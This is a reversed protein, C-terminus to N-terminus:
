DVDEGTSLEIVDAPQSEDLKRLWHVGFGNAAFDLPYLLVVAVPFTLITAFTFDDFMYVGFYGLVFYCFFPMAGCVGIARWLVTKRTAPSSFCLVSGVGAVVISPPLM